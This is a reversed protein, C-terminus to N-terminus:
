ARQGHIKPTSPNRILGVVDDGRDVLLRALRM